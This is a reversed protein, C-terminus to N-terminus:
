GGPAAPAAVRGSRRLKSEKPLMAEIAGRMEGRHKRTADGGLTLDSAGLLDRDMAELLGVIEPVSPEHGRLIGRMIVCAIDFPPGSVKERFKYLADKQQNYWPRFERELARDWVDNRLAEFVRVFEARTLGARTAVDLWHPKPGGRFVGARLLLEVRYREPSFERSEIDRVEVLWEPLRARFEMALEAELEGVLSPFMWPVKECLEKVAENVAKPRMNMLGALALQGPAQEERRAFRFLEEAVAVASKSPQRGESCMVRVDECVDPWVPDGELLQRRPERREVIDRIACEPGSWSDGSVTWAYAFALARSWPDM